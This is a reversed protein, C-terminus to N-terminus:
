AWGPPDQEREGSIGAPLFYPKRWGAAFALTSAHASEPDKNKQQKGDHDGRLSVCVNRKGFGVTWHFLGCQHFVRTLGVIAAGFPLPIRM